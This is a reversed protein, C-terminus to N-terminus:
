ECTAGMSEYINILGKVRLQNKSNVYNKMVTNDKVYADIDMKSYDIEINSSVSDNEKEINIKYGGYTNNAADYTSKLTEEFYDLIDQNSSTIVEKTKVSTAIGNKGYIKYESELKYGEKINNTTYKCVIEENKNISGCGFTFLLMIIVLAFFKKM